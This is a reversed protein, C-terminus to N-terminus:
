DDEEFYVMCGGLETDRGITSCFQRLANRKVSKIVRCVLARNRQFDLLNEPTMNRRGIEKECLRLASKLGGLFRRGKRM